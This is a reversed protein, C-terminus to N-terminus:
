VATKNKNNTAAVRQERAGRVPRGCRYKRHKASEAASFVGGRANEPPLPLPPKSAEFCNTNVTNPPTATEFVDHRGNDPGIEM